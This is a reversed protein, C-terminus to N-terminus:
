AELHRGRGAPTTTPTMEGAMRGNRTPRPRGAAALLRDYEDLLAGWVREPTFDRAARAQGARGHRRRLDPADLYAALARALADVDGVPVLTGTEGDLVADVTGTARFGVVPRAAAAAELPANPFGER